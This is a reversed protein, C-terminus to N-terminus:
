YIALVMFKESHVPLNALKHINLLKRQSDTMKLTMWEPPLPSLTFNAGTHTKEVKRQVYTLIIITTLSAYNQNTTKTYMRVSLYQGM